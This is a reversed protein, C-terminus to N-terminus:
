LTSGIKSLIKEDMSAFLFDWFCFNDKKSFYCPQASLKGEVQRSLDGVSVWKYETLTCTCLLLLPQSIKM